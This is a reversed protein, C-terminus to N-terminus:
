KRPPGALYRAVRRESLVWFGASDALIAVTPQGRAITKAAGDERVVMLRSREGNAEGVIIFRDEFVALGKPHALAPAIGVELPTWLLKPNLPRGFIALRAPSQRSEAWVLAMGRFALRASASEPQESWTNIAFLRWPLDFSEPSQIWYNGSVLDLRGDGDIDRALLGGQRSATYFSYIERYSWRGAASRQYFRIQMGRYVAAIGPRGFLDLGLCDEFDPGEDILEREWRPARFVALGEKVPAILDLDGDADADAVCGGANTQFSGLPEPKLNRWRVLTDGWTWIEGQGILAAGRIVGAPERTGELRFPQGWGIGALVLAFCWRLVIM